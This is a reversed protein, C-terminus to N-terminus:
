SKGATRTPKPGGAGAKARRSAAKARRSTTSGVPNDDTVESGRRNGDDNAARASTTADAQDDDDADAAAARAKRRDDAVQGQFAIQEGQIEDQVDSLPRGGVVDGSKTVRAGVLPEGAGYTIPARESVAPPGPPATDVPARRVGGAPTGGGATPGENRGQRVVTGM